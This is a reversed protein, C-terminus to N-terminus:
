PLGSVDGQPFTNTQPEVLILSETASDVRSSARMEGEQFKTGLGMSAELALVIGWPVLCPSFDVPNVVSHLSHRKADSTPNNESFCFGELLSVLALLLCVFLCVQPILFPM